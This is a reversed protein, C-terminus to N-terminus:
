FKMAPKSSSAATAGHWLTSAKPPAAPSCSKTKPRRTLSSPWTRAPPKSAETTRASLRYVGRKVSSYHERYFDDMADIVCAPKQTTATSDLFALPKAGKDGAVLMPFESRITEADFSNVNDMVLIYFLQM